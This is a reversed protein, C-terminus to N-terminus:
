RAMSSKCVPPKINRASTTLFAIGKTRIADLKARREAIISNEDVPLESAATQNNLESM